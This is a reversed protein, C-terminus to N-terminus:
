STVCDPWQLELSAATAVILLELAVAPKAVVSLVPVVIMPMAEPETVAEAVSVTFAAATVDIATVGGAGVRANPMLWCNVAM